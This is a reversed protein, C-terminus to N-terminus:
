KGMKKAYSIIEEATMDDLLLMIGSDGMPNGYKAAKKREHEFIKEIAQDLAKQQKESLTQRMDQLSKRYTEANQANIKVDSCGCIVTSFCVALLIAGCYKFINKM